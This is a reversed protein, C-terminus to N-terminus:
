TARAAAGFRQASRARAKAAEADRERPPAHTV